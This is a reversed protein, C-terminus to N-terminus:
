RLVWQGGGMMRVAGALEILTLAVSVDSASLGTKEVLQDITQPMGTLAHFVKAETPLHPIYAHINQTESPIIGLIRLIDEPTTVLRAHGAAILRHCGDYHEDFIQGPVAFVERNYDLALEATIVSGSGDPAECILTGESLGAIIRNRAPFTYKDPMIELPFESLLLGDHELINEALDRHGPPYVHSLGHGLVAITKGGARMTEQAVAADVGLALGSVTTMHARVFAPVFTEVVRRGYSTMERTGVISILPQDVLSLNGRYSLFVPADEIHRLNAPYTEDEISILQVDCREMERLYRGMDFTGIRDFTRTITEDKLGLEKLMVSSLEELAIDLDGYVQLLADYRRKTLVNTQWWRLTSEPKM